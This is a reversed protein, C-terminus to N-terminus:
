GLVVGTEHLTVDGSAAILPHGGGEFPQIVGVYGIHGIAHAVWGCTEAEGKALVIELGIKDVRPEQNREGEDSLGIDRVFEVVFDEEVFNVDVFSHKASFM